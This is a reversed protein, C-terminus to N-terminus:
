RRARTTPVHVANVNLYTSGRMEAMLKFMRAVCTCVSDCVCLHLRLCLCLTHKLSYKHAHVKRTSLGAFLCTISVCIAHKINTRRDALKAENQM